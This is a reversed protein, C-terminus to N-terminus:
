RGRSPGRSRAREPIAVGAEYITRKPAIDPATYFGTEERHRTFAVYTLNRDLTQSSLIFSRDVTAGQARHISVAFGHDFSSFERPSFTLKRANGTEDADLRVALKETGVAEVTGLMGNRVGLTADNRTFLIREGPAFARPGHDTEFLTEIQPGELTTRAAKIAQNIAHVDKRRHALALRSKGNGHTQRDAIYDEVLAAIAHDRTDSERVAGHDAYNRIAMETHGDALDGSAQRQWDAKQRRIETLHAAGTKDVIDRFPTGAEIPQLQDPDGVLVLKCGRQRLQESIRSLQRTGVMGAEDIVVVDGIGVPEYGSKWSAELSALTRSPIGSATQLSDAAKGALAAGHVKLGQREWAERAVSLLTSKGSGALGVVSCLQNAALVHRIADVQEGSLKAGVCKELNANKQKIAHDVHKRDVYFGGSRAMESTSAALQREVALFEKTTFKQNEGDGIRVLEPAALVKDSAVRLDLPDDIFEALGRLIDSRTFRAQKDSIHALILDPRRQLQDPTFPVDERPLVLPQHPDPRYIRGTAPVCRGLLERELAYQAELFLRERDLERREALHREILAQTERRDRTTCADAEKALDDLLQQYQGTLRAWAAKIGVPLRAQRAKLEEILRADQTESLGNREARQRVILASRKGEFEQLLWDAPSESSFAATQQGQEAHQRLLEMATEIDPLDGIDDTDGLRTRLEKAKVGCWRSLSYVEGDGDVAVFGRRDGRALCFGKEFLAAAFAARSDSAAWCDKFLAKLAAPDRKVRKAQAAEVASYNLPDRDKSDRIGDPMEWGHELYLARSIEILRRKFFPLNVARMKEADIRLWVCHGHRRGKKEHFVIARPQGTLGLRMEIEGIVREFEAVPVKATQPPNLSLSFLYQPCKTGLSVAEAEKMAAMLDQGLFGSLEHIVVHDNDQPNLLHLALKAGYGRQNGKLIM